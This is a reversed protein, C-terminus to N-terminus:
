RTVTFLQMFFHNFKEEQASIIPRSLPVGSQQQQVFWKFLVADLNKDNALRARKKNLGDSEDVTHLFERLKDKEKLWGQLTSEAIGLDRSVKAQTEGSDTHEVANLTDSVTWAKRKSGRGSM